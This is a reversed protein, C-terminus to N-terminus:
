AAPHRRYQESFARGPTGVGLADDAIRFNHRQAQPIEPHLVFSQARPKRQPKPPELAAAEQEVPAADKEAKKDAFQKNLEALYGAAQWESSFEEGVGDEDVYYGDQLDDWIGYAIRAGRDLEVVHFREDPTAQEPEDIASPIQEPVPADIIEFGQPPPTLDNRLTRRLRAATRM